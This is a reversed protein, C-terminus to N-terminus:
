LETYNQIINDIDCNGYKTSPKFEIEMRCLPCSKNNKKIWNHLCVIHYDHLCTLLVTDKADTYNEFCIACRTSKTRSSYENIDEFTKFVSYKSLISIDNVFIFGLAILENYKINFEINKQIDINESNPIISFKKKIADSISKSLWNINDYNNTSPIINSLQGNLDISLNDCTFYIEPELLSNQTNYNYNYNYSTFYKLNPYIHIHIIKDNLTFQIYKKNNHNNENHNNINHNITHTNVQLIETIKLIEILELIITENSLLLNFEDIEEGRLKQGICKGWAKIIYDTNNHYNYREIIHRIIRFIYSIPDKSKDM